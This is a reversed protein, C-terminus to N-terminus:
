LDGIGGGAAPDLDPIKLEVLNGVAPDSLGNLRAIRVWQTADGLVEAALRFLNTKSVTMTRM